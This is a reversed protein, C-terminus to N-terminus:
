ESQFSEQLAMIKREFEQYTQLLVFYKMTTTSVHDDILGVFQSGEQSFISELFIKAVYDGAFTGRAVKRFELMMRDLFNDELRSYTDYQDQSFGIVELLPTNDGESNNVEQYKQKLIDMFESM